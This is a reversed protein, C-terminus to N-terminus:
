TLPQCADSIKEKKGLSQGADSESTSASSSLFIVDANLAWHGRRRSLVFHSMRLGPCQVLMGVGTRTADFDIDETCSLTIIGQVVQHKNAQTPLWVRGGRCNRRGSM